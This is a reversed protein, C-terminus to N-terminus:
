VHARGIESTEQPARQTASKGFFYQFGLMIAVSIAIALFLNRQNDM